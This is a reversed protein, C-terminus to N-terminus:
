RQTFDFSIFNDEIIVTKEYLKLSFLTNFGASKQKFETTKTFM